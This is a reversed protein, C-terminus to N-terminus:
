CFPADHIFSKSDNADDCDDADEDGGDDGAHITFGGVGFFDPVFLHGNAVDVGLIIEDNIRVDDAGVAYGELVGNYFM